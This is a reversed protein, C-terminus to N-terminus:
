PETKACGSLHPVSTVYTEVDLFMNFYLYLLDQGILFGCNHDYMCARQNLWMIQADLYKNYFFVYIQVLIWKSLWIPCSVYVYIQVYEM